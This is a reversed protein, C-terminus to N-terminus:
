GWDQVPQAPSGAAHRGIHRRSGALPLMVSARMGTGLNTPCQTLYGFEPDYAFDLTESLLTDIRDATEAAEKLSFGERLVQIRLHDEENVM